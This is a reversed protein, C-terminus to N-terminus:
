TPAQARKRKKRAEHERQASWDTEIEDLLNRTVKESGDEIAAIAAHRMLASLSAITGGTRDLLYKWERVLTGPKHNYLRLANEMSVVLNAWEARQADAKEQAAKSMRTPPNLLLQGFPEVPLRAFRASTQTKANATGEEFLASAALDVGAYIFTAGSLNALDKLHDNSLRGDKQSVDLFHMDDILVIETGCARMAKLVALTLEEKGAQRRMPLALYEAMRGSLGKPTAASGISVYMVPTYDRGPESFRDPFRRRLRLEHTRGFTKIITSKGLTPQGDVIIGRRAGPEAARNALVTRRMTTHLRAMAPTEVLVLASHYDYRLEELDERDELPMRRYAAASPLEPAEPPRRDVYLRWEEKTLPESFLSNTVQETM